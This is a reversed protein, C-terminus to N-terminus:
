KLRILMQFIGIIQWQFFYGVNLSKLASCGKFAVVLYRTGTHPPYICSSCVPCLHINNYILCLIIDEGLCFCVHRWMMFIQSQIRSQLKCTSSWYKQLTLAYVKRQRQIPHAALSYDYGKRIQHLITYQPRNHQIFENIYNNHKPPHM